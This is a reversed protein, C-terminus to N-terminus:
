NQPEPTLGQRRLEQDRQYQRKQELIDAHIPDNKYNETLAYYLMNLGARMAGESNEPTSWAGAWNNASIVVSTTSQEGLTLNDSEVLTGRNNVGPLNSVLYFSQTLAHGEKLFETTNIQLDDLLTHLVNSTNLQGELLDIVLFGGNNVYNQLKLRATDSLRPTRQEIQLLIMPFYSIDDTELDLGVIGAPEVSSRRHSELALQGLGREALRNYNASPTKIYALYIDRAYVGADDRMTPHIQLLEQQQAVPKPQTIPENDGPNASIDNIGAAMSFLAVTGGLILQNIKM